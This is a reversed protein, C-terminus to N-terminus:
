RRHTRLTQLAKLRSQQPGDLAVQFARVPRKINKVRIEGLDHLQVDMLHHIQERASGSICIGGPQAMAELRAAVNVGDGLLDDGDMLVDGVNIGIRFQIREDPPLEASREAMGAQVDMACRFADVVSPFEILFSDGATNAIRGNYRELLPDILETRHKRLAAITGEEDQSTLRSYEAVDAALLTTLKRGSIETPM